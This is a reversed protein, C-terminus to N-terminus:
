DQSVPQYTSDLSQYLDNQATAQNNRESVLNNYQAVLSKTEEVLANFEGVQQNYVPVQQNYAQIQGSSRLQDLQRSLDDLAAQQQKLDSNNHDVQGKLSKLQKDYADLKDQSATFVDQYQKAYGVITSRDTFYQKYYDELEPTLTAYETGLISHMENYLEGPEQQNYIKILDLIRQDKMTEIIPKLMTNVRDRESNSLREYAAHLMEHAATVEKVGTLRADSVNYVYIQQAKYCGLVITQESQTSCSKNFADSAQIQPQSIYFLQRGRGQMTDDDALQQVEPSPKYQNLRWWDFVAQHNLVLWAAGAFLAVTVIVSVLSNGSQRKV